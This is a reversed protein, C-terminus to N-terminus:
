TWTANSSITQTKQSRISLSTMQWGPAGGTANTLTITQGLAADVTDGSFTLVNNGGTLVYIDGLGNTSTSRSVVLNSSTSSVTVYVQAFTTSTTTGDWASVTFAALATGSVNTAPTWVLSEGSSLLTSGATVDNGNKTLSGSTISEIRFRIADGSDPDSVQAANLLTAYSINFPTNQVAGTLTQISFLTPADNVAIVDVNIQVSTTSAASNDWAKVAFAAVTGNTNAAPTWTLTENTSLLTTGVVINTGNKTLTGSNLAEVRFSVNTSDVDAIDSANKLTTYSITFPQDEVAGELTSLTTLTPADNVASVDINVQLATTSAASGDWARITFAGIASGNVNTAPTWSWSESNRLLTSGPVVNTGNQKLTGSTVSEIRFSLAGSDIDDEDAAAALAAYSITFATDEIGGSLTSVNNLTPADNDAAVDMNVQVATASNTKGDWARITFAAIGSGNINIAPTWILTENTKLLTSGAVVNTGDKTLSGSTVSEIRFSIADNELDSEDAAGALTTFTIPFTTDETAGTLTSITTLTPATNILSLIANSSTISGYANTVVVSYAGADGPQVGEVTYASATAGSINTSNKRWQYGFPAIGGATVNFTVDSGVTVSQSQPQTAISLASITYSQTATQTSSGGAYVADYSALATRMVRAYATGNNGTFNTQTSIGKALINTIQTTWTSQNTSTEVQYTGGEVSSWVLTVTANTVAPASLKVSVNQGGVFNTTVNETISTVSGGTADGYFEYGFTYPYASAGTSDISIFYAYTGGPYEPTVCYRGNYEDLDFDVGKTKGCDGLYAWDEAYTSLTVSSTSPRATTATTSYAGGFHNQRYRAYWAPLIFLNTSLIDTGNNGDRKAYGAVMRRIGSSADTATSYGYPGYVPYGDHAWGIIPSHSLTASTSESYLKTSTNYDVHDGLQYRVGLPNQHTHYIGNPPQHGNSSDFTEAVPANRHWYYTSQTHAGSVDSSGDWAKGDLSNFIAVGNVFIGSYAAPTTDKGGPPVVPTRPFRRISHQNTPWLSATNGQPTVFPGMVYSPLGSSQVYVWSSSYSIVQIDSYSPLPQNTWTTGTIGATRASTNTYVRAYQASNNTLWSTILPQASLSTQIIAAAFILLGPCLPKVLFTAPGKTRTPRTTFRQILNRM